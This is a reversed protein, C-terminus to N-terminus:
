SDQNRRVMALDAEQGFIKLARGFILSLIRTRVCDGCKGRGEEVTM